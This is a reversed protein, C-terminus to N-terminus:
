IKRERESVNRERAEKEKNKERGRHMNARDREKERGRRRYIKRSIVLVVTTSRDEQLIVKLIFQIINSNM